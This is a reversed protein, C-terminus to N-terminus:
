GKAFFRKTLPALYVHYPLLSCEYSTFNNQLIEKKSMSKEGNCKRCCLLHNKQMGARNVLCRIILKKFGLWIGRCCRVMIM